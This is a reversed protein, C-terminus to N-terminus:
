KFLGDILSKDDVAGDLQEQALTRLAALIDVFKEKVKDSRDSDLIQTELNNIREILKNLKTDDLRSIMRGYKIKFTRKFKERLDARKAKVKDIIDERKVKVRGRIYNIKNKVRKSV